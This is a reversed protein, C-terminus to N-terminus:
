PRAALAGRRPVPHGRRELRRSSVTGSGLVSRAERVIGAVENEGFAQGGTAEALTQAFAASAPDPRYGPDRRGNEYIRERPNWFRVFITNVGPPRRFAA